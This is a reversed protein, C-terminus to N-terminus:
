CFPTVNRYTGKFVNCVILYLYYVHIVVHLSVQQKMSKIDNSSFLPIAQPSRQISHQSQNTPIPANGNTGNSHQSQNIVVHAHGNTGNSYESQNNAMPTHGNSMAAAATISSFATLPGQHTVSSHNTAGHPSVGNTTPGNETGYGTSGNQFLVFFLVLHNM